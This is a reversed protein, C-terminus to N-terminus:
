HVRSSKLVRIEIAYLDNRYLIKDLAPTEIVVSKLKAIQDVFFSHQNLLCEKLAKFQDEPFAKELNEFNPLSIDSTLELENPKAITHIVIIINDMASPFLKEGLYHELESRINDFDEPNLHVNNKPCDDDDSIKLFISGGNTNLFACVTSAAKDKIIDLSSEKLYDSDYSTM